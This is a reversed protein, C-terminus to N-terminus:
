YSFQVLSCPHFFLAAPRQNYAQRAVRTVEVGGYTDCVLMRFMKDMAVKFGFKDMKSGPWLGRAATRRQDDRLFLKSLGERRAKKFLGDLSDMDIGPM